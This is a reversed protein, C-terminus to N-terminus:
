QIRAAGKTTKEKEWQGGRGGMSTTRKLTLSQM